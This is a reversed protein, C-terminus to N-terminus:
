ARELVQKWLSTSLSFISCLINCLIVNRPNRPVRLINYTVDMSLRFRNFLLRFVRPHHELVLRDSGQKAKNLEGKEILVSSLIHFPTQLPPVRYFPTQPMWAVVRPLSLAAVSSAQKEDAPAPIPLIPFNIIPLIPFILVRFTYILWITMPIWSPLRIRTYREILNVRFASHVDKSSSVHSVRSTTSYLDIFVFRWLSLSFSVLSFNPNSFRMM